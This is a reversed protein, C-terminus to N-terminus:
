LLAGYRNMIVALSHTYLPDKNELSKKLNDHPMIKYDPAKGFGDSFEITGSKATLALNGHFVGFYIHAQTWKLWLRHSDRDFKFVKFEPDVTIKRVLAYRWLEGEEKNVRSFYEDVSQAIVINIGGEERVERVLAGDPKEDHSQHGSVTESWLQPDVSKDGRQVTYVGREPHHLVLYVVPVAYPSEGTDFAVQRQEDLIEKKPGTKLVRGDLGLADILEEVM